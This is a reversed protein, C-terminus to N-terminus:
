SVDWQSADSRICVATLATCYAGCYIRQSHEWSLHFLIVIVLLMGVVLNHLVTHTTLSVLDARDYYPVVKVDSPLISSNLEKVKDEVRQIVESANEGRRMIVVGLVADDNTPTEVKGLRVAHGIRVDGLQAIKLPTGNLNTVLVNEIDNM